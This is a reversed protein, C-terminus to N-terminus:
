LDKNEQEIKINLNHKIYHIETFKKKVKFKKEIEYNYLFKDIKKFELDDLKSIKYNELHITNM